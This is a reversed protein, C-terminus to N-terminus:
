ILLDSQIDEFTEGYTFGIIAISNNTKLTLDDNYATLYYELKDDFNENPNIICEPTNGNISVLVGVYNMNYDNAAEFCNKLNELTLELM